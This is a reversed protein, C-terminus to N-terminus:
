VYIELYDKDQAIVEGRKKNWYEHSMFGKQSQREM